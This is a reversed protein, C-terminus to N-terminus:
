LRQGEYLRRSRRVERLKRAEGRRLIQVIPRNSREFRNKSENPDNEDKFKQINAHYEELKASVDDIMSARLRVTIFIADEM